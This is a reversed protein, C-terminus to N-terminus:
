SLAMSLTINQECLSKLHGDDVAVPSGHKFGPHMPLDRMLMQSRWKCYVVSRLEPTVCPETKDSSLGIWPM